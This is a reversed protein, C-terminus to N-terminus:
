KMDDGHNEMSFGQAKWVYELNPTRTCAFSQLTPHSALGMGFQQIMQWPGTASNM